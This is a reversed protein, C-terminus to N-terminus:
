SDIYGGSCSRGGAALFLKDISATYWKRVYETMTTIAHIRTDFTASRHMMAQVQDRTSTIQHHRPMSKLPVLPVKSTTVEVTHWSELGIQETPKADLFM